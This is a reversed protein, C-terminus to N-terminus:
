ATASVPLYIQSELRTSLSEIEPLGFRTTFLLPLRLQPVPLDHGLRLLIRDGLEQRHRILRARVVLPGLTPDEAIGPARELADLALAPAGSAFRDPWLQNIVLAGVHMGIEERAARYLDAAENAPMDEALTVIVMSARTPDELLARVHHADRVLPGERVAGLIARPLRLMALAHGTAPADLIVLDHLPQGSSDQETTHFWAKGLMSYDEIGPIARLFAKVMRNELVARYVREYRLIM